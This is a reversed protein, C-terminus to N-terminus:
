LWAYMSSDILRLTEWEFLSVTMCVYVWLTMCDSLWITLCHSLWKNVIDLIVCYKVSEFWTLCQSVTLCVTDCLWLTLSVWDSHWVTVCASVCCDCLVVTMCDYLWIIVTLCWSDYLCVTAVWNTLCDSMLLILCDNWRVNALVGLWVPMYESDFLLLWVTLCNWNRKESPCQTACDCFWVIKCERLGMIQFEYVCQWFGLTM